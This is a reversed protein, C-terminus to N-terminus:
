FPLEDESLTPVNAMQAEVAHFEATLANLAKWVHFGVLGAPLVASALQLLLLPAAAMPIGKDAHQDVQTGTEGQRVVYTVINNGPLVVVVVSEFQNENMVAGKLTIPCIDSLAIM